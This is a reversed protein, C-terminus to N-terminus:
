LGQTWPNESSGIFTIAENHTQLDFNEALHPPVIIYSEAEILNKDLVQGYVDILGDLPEDLPNQFQVRVNCHDGTNVEVMNSTNKVVTGILRVNKKQFRPNLLMAATVSTRPTGYKENAM